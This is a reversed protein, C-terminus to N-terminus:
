PGLKYFFTQCTQATGELAYYNSRPVSKLWPGYHCSDVPIYGNRDTLKFFTKTVLRHDVISIELDLFHIVTSSVEYTLVIGMKKNNLNAMFDHLSEEVGKWLLCIDDIYRAWLTLEPCQLAYVVDEEWVAMFLNALSPSFKAGMAFGKGQLFFQDNYWFYNSQTAFHLLEM